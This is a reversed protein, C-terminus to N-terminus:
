ARHGFTVFTVRHLPAFNEFNERGRQAFKAANAKALNIKEMPWIAVRLLATYSLAFHTVDM